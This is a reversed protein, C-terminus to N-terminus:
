FITYVGNKMLSMQRNNPFRLTVETVQIRTQLEPVYVRDIHVAEEPTSFDKVGIMGGFHDSRGFAVHLGLKEDLLIKNVPEVGFDRLVGFGIEAINGYAPEDYLKQRENVSVDNCSLTDIARNKEIRYLVVDNGLQVPLIGQSLTSESQEGEYPVIYCEGGPLNGATGPDPFRGGSVHALRHRLDFYIHHGEFDDVLFQIEMGIAPDLFEKIKTVRRNIEHYNLRLAPIMDPTFGPMTAAKFQYKKALIKLPATASFQTPAIILQHAAFLADLNIYELRDPLTELSNLGSPDKILYFLGPLDANQAHVNVYCAIHVKKLPVEYRVAHLKKAWDLVLHRRNKWLEEDRSRVDPFDVLFLLTDEQHSPTFVQQVLTKLEITTMDPIM